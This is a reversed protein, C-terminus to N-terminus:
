PKEFLSVLAAQAAHQASNRQIYPGFGAVSGIGHAVAAEAQQLTPTSPAPGPPPMPAPPAPPLPAPPTVMPVSGGRADFSQIITAWDVGNPAKAMGKALQDPTLIAFLQGGSNSVAYKAIAGFTVILFLGWSDVVLGRPDNDVGGFCHGNEPVPDGAVDWVVGDSSPFPSIWAEPLGVGFMTGEFLWNVAHVEAANTADVSIAGLAKTGNPWGTQEVYSIATDEDCGQDTSPDGPKYGGIASYMAIVQDLTPTFPDGANATVLGLFHGLWAPVCDGLEDNGYVNRLVTPASNRFSTTDPVVLSPVDIVKSAKLKTHPIRPAKRGGLKINKNLHPAFVSHM